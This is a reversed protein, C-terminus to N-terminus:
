NLDAITQSRQKKEKKKKDRETWQITAASSHPSNMARM